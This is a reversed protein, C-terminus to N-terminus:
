NNYGSSYQERIVQDPKGGNALSAMASISGNIRRLEEVRTIESLSQFNPREEIM